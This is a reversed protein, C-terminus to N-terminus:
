GAPPTEMPAQFQPIVPAPPAPREAQEESKETQPEAEPQSASEAEAQEPKEVSDKDASDKDAAGKEATKEGSKGSKKEAEQQAAAEEAEKEAQEHALEEPRVRDAWPVWEPALLADDGPLLGIECVTAVKGRPVRSLTAFWNWGRYGKLTCEFLHTLLRDEEVRVQHGPGIQEPSAIQLVGQRAVEVADALVQDPKSSRRRRAPGAPGLTPPTSAAQDAAAEAAPEATQATGDQEPTRTREPM